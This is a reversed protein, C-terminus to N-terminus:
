QAYGPHLGAPTKGSVQPVSLHNKGKAEICLLTAGNAVAQALYDHADFTEGSFALFLGNKATERTDTFVSEVASPANDGVLRGGTAHLLEHLTFPADYM